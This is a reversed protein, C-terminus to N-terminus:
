WNHYDNDLSLSLYTNQIKRLFNTLETSKLNLCKVAKELVALTVQVLIDQGFVQPLRLMLNM